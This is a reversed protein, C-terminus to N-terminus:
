TGATFRYRRQGIHRSAMTVVAIEGAVGAVALTGRKGSFLCLLSVAICGLVTADYRRCRCGDLRATRLTRALRPSEQLIGAEIADLIRRERESLM